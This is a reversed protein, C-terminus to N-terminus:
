KCHLDILQNVEDGYMITFDNANARYLDECAENIKGLQLYVLARNRYAYSNIPDIQLSQDIDQLAGTNDGLKHKAYGRNNLTFSNNGFKTLVIDFYNLAQSYEELELYIFGLNSISPYFDPDLQIARELYKIADRKKGLDSYASALNILIGTDSSDIKYAKELTVAANEYDRVSLQVASINLLASKRSQDDQALKLEINYDDYAAQFERVELLLRGRNNYLIGSDPYMLITRTFQDYAEQYYGQEYFSNASYFLFTYNTSDKQLEQETLKQLKEFQGSDFLSDLTEIIPNDQALILPTSFLLVVIILIQKM